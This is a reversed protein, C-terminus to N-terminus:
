EIKKSQASFYTQSFNAFYLEFQWGIGESM